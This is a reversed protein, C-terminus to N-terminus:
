LRNVIIPSNKYYPLSRITNYEIFEVADTISMGDNDCLSVVMDDYDYVARNDNSIGIFADAYDPNSFIVINEYGNDEILNEVDQKTLKNM